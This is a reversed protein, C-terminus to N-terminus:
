DRSFTFYLGAAALCVAPVLTALGPNTQGDTLLNVGFGVGINSLTLLIAGVVGRSREREYAEVFRKYTNRETKLSLTEETLQKYYHLLMTVATENGVLKELSVGVLGDTSLGLISDVDNTQTEAM